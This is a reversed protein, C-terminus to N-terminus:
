VFTFIRICEDNNDGVSNDLSKYSHKTSFRKSSFLRFNDSGDEGLVAFFYVQLKQLMIIQVMM